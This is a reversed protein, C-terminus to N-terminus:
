IFSIAIRWILLWMCYFGDKVQEPEKNPAHGITTSEHSM